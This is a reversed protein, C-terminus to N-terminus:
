LQRKIVMVRYTAHYTPVIAVERTKGRYSSVVQSICLFCSARPLVIEGEKRVSTM